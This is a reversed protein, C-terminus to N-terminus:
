KAKGELPKIRKLHIPEIFFKKEKNGEKMKVVYVKGRRSEITGTRGQLRVPFNSAKSKERVVSVSDGAKLEQFYRSLKLKGRTRISKKKTM